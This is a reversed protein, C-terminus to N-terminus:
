LSPDVLTHSSCTFVKVGADKAYGKVKADRALAYPEIDDEFTLLKVNWSKFISKLVEEPKGRIVFLRSGITKLKSDLDALSQLLFRWRNPGVAMLKPINPDLIFIPRLELEKGNVV